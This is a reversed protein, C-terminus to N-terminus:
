QVRPANKQDSTWINANVFPVPRNMTPSFDLYPIGQWTEVRAATSRLRLLPHEIVSAECTPWDLAERRFGHEPHDSYRVTQFQMGVGRPTPVMNSIVVAYEEPKLTHCIICAGMSADVPWQGTAYFRRMEAESLMGPLFFGPEAHGEIMRQLTLASCADGFRCPVPELTIRPNVPSPRRVAAVAYHLMDVSTMLRPLATRPAVGAATASSTATASLRLLDAIFAVPYTDSTPVTGILRDLPLSPARGLLERHTVNGRTRAEVASAMMQEPTAGVDALFADLPVLTAAGRYM